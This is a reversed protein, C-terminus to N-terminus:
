ENKLEKSNQTGLLSLLKLLAPIGAAISTIIGVMRSYLGEQAIALFIFVVMVIILLPVKLNNWNSHKKHLMQLHAIEKEDVSSLIFNRFSSNFIHLIGEEETILRKNMLLGLSFTDSINVLGDLALDYLIYREDSSLSHWIGMYFNNAFSQIKLSVKDEIFSTPEPYVDYQILETRLRRLFKTYRTEKDIYLKLLNNKAATTEYKNKILPLVIVSSDNLITYMLRATNTDMPTEGEDKKNNLIKLMKLPHMSSVIRIKKGNDLLLKISNLKETVIAANDLNNEINLVIVFADPHQIIAAKKSEWSSAKKEEQKLQLVYVGDNNIPLSLNAAKKDDIKIDDFDLCLVPNKKNIKTRVEEAIENAPLGIVWLMKRQPNGLLPYFIEKVEKDSVVTVNDLNLSCIKKIVERLVFYFGWLALALLLWFIFGYNLTLSPFTYIVNGSVLELYNAADPKSANGITDNIVYNVRSIALKNKHSSDYLVDDFFNNFCLNGDDSSKYFNDDNLEATNDIYLGFSNFLAVTNADRKLNTNASDHKRMLSDKLSLSDIWIGDNYIAHKSNLLDFPKLIKPFKQRLQKAFDYQRYRVLLNNEYNYSATYFFVAPIASTILLRTFIMRTYYPIFVKKQTPLKNDPQPHYLLFFIWGALITSAEFILVYLYPKCGLSIYAFLNLVALFIISYKNCNAKYNKFVENKERKYKHLFIFNVFITSLPISFLLLYLYSLYNFLFMLVILTIILVINGMYAIRYENQSCERPWLWSTIIYQKKFLSRRSSAIVLIFLDMLVVILFVLVMGWTFSFTEIAVTNAFGEDEMVVVFYPLGKLPKVLVSYNGEYYRTEFNEEFGGKLADDLKEHNSFEKLLNENLSRTSISHYRVVGSNDVIAFSYGAPMIVSDFSKVTFSLAAVAAAKGDKADIDNLLSKKSIITRFTGSTRSVIQDLAVPISDPAVPLTITNGNYINKFYSRDKYNAHINNISSITWGYILTGNKDLWNLEYYNLQDCLNKLSDKKPLSDYSNDFISKTTYKIEPTGLNTIDNRLLSDCNILSDFKNLCVYASNIETNFANNIEHALTQKSDTNYNPRFSYNYTFFFLVILSALLKAVVVSATADKFDIKDYKGQFYIKIWPLFLLIGLAITIALVVIGAPLQKKEADLKKQSILGAVLLKGSSFFNLPQFFIQYDIGGVKQKIINAGTMGDGTKLLSDEHQKDYSLGSHFDEYIYEGEYFIVYHEFLDPILLPTIFKEFDYTISVEYKKHTGPKEKAASLTLKNTSSDRKLIFIVSNTDPENSRRIPNLTGKKQNITNQQTPTTFATLSADPIVYKRIYNEVNKESQSSDMYARLMNALLTDVGSIKARINEDTKQLWRFHQEDISQENDPIYHMYYWLAAAAMIALTFLVTIQKRGISFAKSM